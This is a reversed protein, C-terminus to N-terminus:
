RRHFPRPLQTLLTSRFLSCALRAATHKRWVDIACVEATAVPVDTWAIQCEMAYPVGADWLGCPSFRTLNSDLHCIGPLGRRFLQCGHCAEHDAHNGTHAMGNGRADDAHAM